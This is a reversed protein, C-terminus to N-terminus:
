RGAVVTDRLFAGIQAIAERGEPLSSASGQFVHWMRPWVSLIVRVGAQRARQALRTADSLLVEDDGVQVLMSPLGALDMAIPVLLPDDRDADAVYYASMLRCFEESLWPDAKARTIFSEGDFNLWDTLPSMFFAAAPLPEGGDRLKLLAQLTLAGGASDGGMVIHSPRMGGDLLWGYARVVDELGAPYPHEPALRYDPVLVRMGCAVSIRAALDRYHRPSGMVGGGGHLYCVARDEAASPGSVWEADFDDIRVPEIQTEPPVQSFKVLGDMARRHATVSIGARRFQPAIYYRLLARLLHSQWSPM